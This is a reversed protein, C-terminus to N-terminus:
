RSNHTGTKPELPKDGEREGARWSPGCLATLTAQPLCFTELHDGVSCCRDALYACVSGTLHFQPPALVPCIQFINASLFSPPPAGPEKSGTLEGRGVRLVDGVSDSVRRPAGISWIPRPQLVMPLASIGPFDHRLLGDFTGESMCHGSWDRPSHSVASLSTRGVRRCQGGRLLGRVFGSGRLHARGREGM